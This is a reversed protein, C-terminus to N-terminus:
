APKRAEAYLARAPGWTVGLRELWLAATLPPYALPACRSGRRDQDPRASGARAQRHRADDADVHYCTCGPRRSSRSSSTARTATAFRTKGSDARQRPAGARWDREPVHVLLLGDPGSRACRLSGNGGRRRPDGRPMGHALVVDYGGEPIPSTLDIASSACTASAMGTRTRAAASSARGRAHGRGRSDVDPAARRDRAGPARRRRGRRPRPDADDGISSRSRGCRSCSASVGRRRCTVSGVSSANAAVHVDAEFSRLETANACGRRATVDTRM